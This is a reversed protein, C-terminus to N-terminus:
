PLEGENDFGAAILGAIASQGEHLALFLKGGLWSRAPFREALWVKEAETSPQIIVRTTRTADSKRGAIDHIEAL